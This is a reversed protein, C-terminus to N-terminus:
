ESQINVTVERDPFDGSLREFSLVTEREWLRVEPTHTHTDGTNKRESIYGNLLEWSGAYICMFYRHYRTVDLMYFQM